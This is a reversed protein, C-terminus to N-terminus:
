KLKYTKISGNPLKYRLTKEDLWHPEYYYHPDQTTEVVRKEETLLNYIYLHMLKNKLKWEKRDEDNSYEDGTWGAGDDYTMYATDPNFSWNGMAEGPVSFVETKKDLIDMNLFAEFYSDESIRLWLHRSDKSWGEIDLEGTFDPYTKHFVAGDYSYVDKFTKLDKVVITTDSNQESYSSKTMAIYKEDPSIAFSPGYNNEKDKPIYITHLFTGNGNYDYKWLESRFGPLFKHSGYDYNVYKNVYVGCPMLWLTFISNSIGDISFRRVENKSVKNDIVIVAPDNSWKLEKNIFDKDLIYDAVEDEKLCQSHDLQANTVSDSVTTKTEPALVSLGEKYIVFYYANFALIVVIFVLLLVKKTM